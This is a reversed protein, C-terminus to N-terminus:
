KADWKTLSYPWCGELPTAYLPDIDHHRDYESANVSDCSRLRGKPADGSHQM